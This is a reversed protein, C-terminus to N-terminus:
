DVRRDDTDVLAHVQSAGHEHIRQRKTAMERREGNVARTPTRLVILGLVIFLAEAALAALGFPDQWPLVPFMPLGITRSVVYAALAAAALLVGLTWGWVRAGCVLALAVVVVGVVTAYFLAGVYAVFVYYGHAYLLHVAGIVALLGIGVATAKRPPLVAPNRM